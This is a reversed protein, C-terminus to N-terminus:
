HSGTSKWGIGRSPIFLDCPEHTGSPFSITDNSDEYPILDRRIRTYLSSARSSRRGRVPRCCPSSARSSMRRRVPRCSLVRWRTRPCASRSLYRLSPSTRSNLLSESMSSRRVRLRARHRRLMAAQRSIRRLTAAQSWTLRTLSAARSLSTSRRFRSSASVQASTRTCPTSRTSACRASTTGLPARPSFSPASVVSSVTFWPM